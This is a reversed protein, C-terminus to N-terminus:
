CIFRRILLDNRRCNPAHTVVDDAGSQMLCTPACTLPLPCVAFPSHPCVFFSISGLRRPNERYYSTLCVHPARNYTQHQDTEPDAGLRDGLSGVRRTRLQPPFLDDPRIVTVRNPYSSVCTRFFSPRVHINVHFCHYWLYSCRTRSGNKCCCYKGRNIPEERM